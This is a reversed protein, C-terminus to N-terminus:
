RRRATRRARTAAFRSAPSPGAALGALTTREAWGRLADDLETWIDHLPCPDAANCDGWGFACREEEPYADLAALVDVIRIESPRRALSFGGGQGKQSQLVGALVLRRLIKSLYPVPIGTGRALDTARVPGEPAHAALWAAARLAYEATQSLWM